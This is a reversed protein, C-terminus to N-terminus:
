LVIYRRLNPLNKFADMRGRNKYEECVLEKPQKLEQIKNIHDCVQNEEM